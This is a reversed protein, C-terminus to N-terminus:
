QNCIWRVSNYTLGLLEAIEHGTKGADFLAEVAHITKEPTKTSM